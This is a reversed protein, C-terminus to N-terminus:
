NIGCVARTITDNLGSIAFLVEIAYPIFFIAAAIMLRKSFKTTATKLQKEDSAIVAQFFDLSGFVVVLIPAAIKIMDWVFQIDDLLPGLAECGEDSPTTITTSEGQNGGNQNGSNNEELDEADETESGSQGNQSNDVNFSCFKNSGHSGCNLSLKPCTGLFDNPTLSTGAAALSYGNSIDYVLQGNKVSITATIVTGNINETYDCSKYKSDESNVNVKLEKGNNTHSSLNAVITSDGKTSQISYTAGNKGATAKYYISSPCQLKNTSENIFNKAVLSENVTYNYRANEDKKAYNFDKNAGGASNGTITYTVTVGPLDYTCTARAYESEKRAEVNVNVGLILVFLFIIYKSFKLVKKM